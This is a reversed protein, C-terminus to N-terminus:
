RARGNPRGRAIRQCPIGRGMLIHCLGSLEGRRAVSRRRAALWNAVSGEAPSDCRSVQMSCSDPLSSVLIRLSM